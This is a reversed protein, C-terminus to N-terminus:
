GVGVEDYRVIRGTEYCALDDIKGDSSSCFKVSKVFIEKYVCRGVKTFGKSAAELFFISIYHEIIDFLSCKADELFPYVDLSQCSWLRQPVFIFETNTEDLAEFGIVVEIDQWNVAM